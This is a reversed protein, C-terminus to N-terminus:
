ASCDAQLCVLLGIMFFYMMVAKTAATAAVEAAVAPVSTEEL